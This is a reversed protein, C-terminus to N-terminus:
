PVPKPHAVVGVPGAAHREVIGPKRPGVRAHRLHERDHLFSEVAAVHRSPMAVSPQLLPPLVSRAASAEVAGPAAVLAGLKGRDKSAPGRARELYSAPDPFGRM